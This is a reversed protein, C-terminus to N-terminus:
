AFPLSGDTQTVKTIHKNGTMEDYRRMKKFLKGVYILLFYEECIFRKEKRLARSTLWVLGCSIRCM